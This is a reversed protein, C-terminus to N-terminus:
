LETFVRDSWSQPLKQLLPVAKVPGCIEGFLPLPKLGASDKM